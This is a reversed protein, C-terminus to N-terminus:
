RPAMSSRLASYRLYRAGSGALRSAGSPGASAGARRACRSGPAVGGAPYLGGLGAARRGAARVLGAVCRRGRQQPQGQLAGWPGVAAVVAWRFGLRWRKRGAQGAPCWPVGRASPEVSTRAGNRRGRCARSPEALRGRVAAQTHGIRTCRRSCAPVFELSLASPLSPSFHPCIFSNFVKKM